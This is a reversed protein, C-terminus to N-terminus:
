KFNVSISALVNRPAGIEMRNLSGYTSPTYREDTANSVNLQAKVPWQAIAFDYGIMLNLLTYEDLMYPYLQPQFARQVGLRESRYVVGGGIQLGTDALRYTTFLSAGHRPISHLREGQLRDSRTYRVDTYAYSAIVNWHTTIAGSVDLEIGESTAEGALITRRIDAPDAMTLNDKILEFAAITVGLRETELKMGIETQKSTQPDFKEGTSSFGNSTGFGEIYSAYVAVTPLLRYLVGARWTPAHDNIQTKNVGFRNTYDADDYRVGALVHLREDFLVLQDQLYFGLNRNDYSYPDVRYNIDYPASARDPAYINTVLPTGGGSWGGSDYDEDFFDVGALVTHQVGGTTFHGTLDLNTAAVIGEEDEWGWYTRSFNGQVDAATLISGRAVSNRDVYSVRQQISWDDNFAHTLSFQATISEDEYKDDKDHLNRSVPIPVPGNPDGITGYGLAWSRESSLYEVGARISTREGAIWEVQPALYVRQSSTDDKFGHTEEGALNVRYLWSQDRNLAGTSDLTTRYFDHSGIQQQIHTAAQAQPRKSVRNIMGGPEIRGYMIAAPGKLVEIRELGATEKPARSFDKVGDLYSSGYSHANFGRINFSDMTGGDPGQRTYVGSVNQVAQALTLVQQDDMVERSVVQVSVPTDQLAVDTRTGTASRTARYGAVPGDAVEEDAQVQIKRLAKVNAETSPSEAAAHALSASLALAIALPLRASSVLLVGNASALENRM